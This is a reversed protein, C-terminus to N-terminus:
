SKLRATPTLGRDPSRNRRNRLVAAVRPAGRHELASWRRGASGPRQASSCITLPGNDAFAPSVLEISRKRSLETAVVAPDDAGARAKPLAQGIGSPISRLM